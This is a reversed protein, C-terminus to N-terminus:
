SLIGPRTSFVTEEQRLAAEMMGTVSFEATDLRLSCWGTARVEDQNLAELFENELVDSVVDRGAQVRM